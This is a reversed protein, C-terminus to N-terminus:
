LDINLTKEPITTGRLITVRSKAIHFYDAVVQIIASNAKGHEPATSVWVRFNESDIPEIKTQKARTRAFVKIIM